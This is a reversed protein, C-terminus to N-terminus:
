ADTTGQSPAPGSPPQARRDAICQPCLGSIDTAPAGCSWCRRSAAVSPAAQRFTQEGNRARSEPSPVYDAPDSRGGQDAKHRNHARPDSCQPLPCTIPLQWTSPRGREGEAREVDVGCRKSALRLVKDSYGEAHGWRVVEARAAPGDALVSHLWEAADRTTSRDEVTLTALLADPDIGTEEGVVRVVGTDIPHGGQPHDVRAGDVRFRVAPVTLRDTMNAKGVVCVADGRGDPHDGVALLSRVATTFGRSGVTRQLVDGAPAKNFHALGLAGSRLDQAVRALRGITAQVEAKKHSDVPAGLHSDLPDLVVLAVQHGALAAVLDGSDAGIAFSRDGDLDVFHFRSLDAGAAMLRPVLVTARDDEHGIYVVEAPRAEWAGPLEGRSLRAALWVVLATKGTGEYGVMLTTGGVPIRRHWVWTPRDAAITSAAVLTLRPKGGAATGGEAGAGPAVLAALDTTRDALQGVGREALWRAAASADGDFAVAALFTGVTVNAGCERDTLGDIAASWLAVQGPALDGDITGGITVSRASSPAGHCACAPRLLEVASLDGSWGPAYSWGHEVAAEAVLRHGEDGMARLADFPTMEAIDGVPAVLARQPRPPAPPPLLAALDALAPRSDGIAELTVLRPPDYKHNLTGPLRVLRALDATRDLHWGYADAWYAHWRRLLTAAEEAPAAQALVWLPLFGGGTAIIFTPRIPFAAVASFADGMTEPLKTAEQRHAGGRLDLDLHFATLWGADGTGGRGGGTPVGRLTSLRVFTNFNQGWGIAAEAAREHDRTRYYETLWLDRPSHPVQRTVGIYGEETGSFLAAAVRQADAAGAEAAQDFVSM